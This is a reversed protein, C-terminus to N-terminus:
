RQTGTQAEAAQAVGTLTRGAIHSIFHPGIVLNAAAGGILPWEPGTWDHVIRLHSRGDGLDDIQWVVDMGKTIGDIHRYTVTRAAPDSEMESLWWTPYRFGPFPRWAAMEVIGQAFDAKEHFRVWRYHPLIEPWREVNAAIEFCTDPPAHCIQEDVTKM